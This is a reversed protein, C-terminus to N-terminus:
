YNMLARLSRGGANWSGVMWIQPTYSPDRQEYLADSQLNKVPLASAGLEFFLHSVIRLRLNLAGTAGSRVLESYGPQSNLYQRYGVLLEAELRRWGVLYTAQAGVRSPVLDTVLRLGATLTLRDGDFLLSERPWDAELQAVAALGSGRYPLHVEPLDRLRHFGNQIADGGLAGQGIVGLQPHLVFPGNAMSRQVTGQLLDYRFDFRRSTVTNFVLAGSWEKWDVAVLYSVTLFDDNGLYRGTRGAEVSGTYNDNIIGARVGVPEATATTAVLFCLTVLRRM